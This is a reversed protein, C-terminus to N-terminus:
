DWHGDMWIWATPTEAWHGDVWRASPRPPQAYEGQLWVYTQRAPDWNYHGPIWVSGPPVPVLAVPLGYPAAEDADYGLAPYGPYVIPLLRPADQAHGALPVCLALAAIAAPLTYNIM